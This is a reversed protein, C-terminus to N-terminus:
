HWRSSPPTRRASFKSGTRSRCSRMRRRSNIRGTFFTGIGSCSTISSWPPKCRAQKTPWLVCAHRTNGSRALAFRKKQANLTRSCSMRYHVLYGFYRCHNFRYYYVTIENSFHIYIDFSSNKIIINNSIVM